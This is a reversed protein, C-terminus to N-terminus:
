QKCLSFPANSQRPLPRSDKDLHPFISILKDHFERAEAETPFNDFADLGGSRGKVQYKGFVTWFSAEQPACPMLIPTNQSYGVVICPHVELGVYDHILMMWSPTLAQALAIPSPCDGTGEKKSNKSM